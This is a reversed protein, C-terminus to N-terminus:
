LVMGYWSICFLLCRFLRSGVQDYLCFHATNMSGHWCQGGCRTSVWLRCPVTLRSLCRGCSGALSTVNDVFVVVARVPKMCSGCSLHWKLVENLMPLIKAGCRLCATCLHPRNSCIDCTAHDVYRHTPWMSSYQLSPHVSRSAQPLLLNVQTTGLFWTSSPLQSGGHAAVINQPNDPRSFLMALRPQPTHLLLSLENSSLPMVAPSSCGVAISGVPRHWM